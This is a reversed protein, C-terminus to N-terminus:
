LKESKNELKVGEIKLKYNYNDIKLVKFKPNIKYKFFPADLVMTEAEGGEFAPNFGFKKSNEFIESVNKEDIIKGIFNQLGDSSVSIILTKFIKSIEKMYTIQNKRWIPSYVRFNRFISNIRMRQYDSKIAGTFINKIKFKTLFERVGKLVELEKEKEGKTEFIITKIGTVTEFENSINLGPTHFMWSDPNLSKIVILDNIEFGHLIATHLAFCSDKGGTYLVAAHSM